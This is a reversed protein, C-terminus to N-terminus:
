AGTDGSSGGGIAGDSPCTQCHEVLLYSDGEYAEEIIEDCVEDTAAPDNDFHCSCEALVSTYKLTVETIELQCDECTADSSLGQCAELLAERSTTEGDDTVMEDIVDQSVSEFLTKCESRCNAAKEDSGCGFAGISILVFVLRM